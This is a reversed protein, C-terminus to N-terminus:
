QDRARRQNKGGGVGSPKAEPTMKERCSSEDASRKVGYIPMVFAMMWALDRLM